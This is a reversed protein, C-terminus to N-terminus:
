VSSWLGGDSKIMRKTSDLCATGALGLLTRQIVVDHDMLSTQWPHLWPLPLVGNTKEAPPQQFSASPFRLGPWPESPNRTSPVGRHIDTSHTQQLLIPLASQALFCCPCSIHFVTTLLYTDPAGVQLWLSLLQFLFFPWTNAHTHCRSHGTHMCYPVLSSSNWQTM